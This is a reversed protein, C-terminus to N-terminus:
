RLQDNVGKDNLGALGELALAGAKDLSAAQGEAWARDFPEPGLEARAREFLRDVDRRIPIGFVFGRKALAAQAGMIRVADSLEPQVRAAAWLWHNLAHDERAELLIPLSHTLAPAVAAHHGGDHAYVAVGFEYGASTVPAGGQDALAVAEQAL